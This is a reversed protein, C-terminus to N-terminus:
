ATIRCTMYWGPANYAALHARQAPALTDQVRYGQNEWYTRSDQVSVLASSGLGAANAVMRAQLILATGAGCGRARRSVALDHLYLCDADSPIEFHGGLPTVKGLLSPYATLYAVIKGELEAVWSTTPAAALRLGIVAASENMHPLYCEAQIGMVDPVDDAQM